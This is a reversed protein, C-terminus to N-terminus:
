PELRPREESQQELFGRASNRGREAGTLIFSGFINERLRWTDGFSAHGIWAYVRQRIEDLGMSGRHYLEAMVRLRRRMRMANRRPLRARDPFLRWGLFTLGDSTSYLRSKGDHVRLRLGSLFDAIASRMPVLQAKEGFLVFDDVFRLYLEPRLERLV